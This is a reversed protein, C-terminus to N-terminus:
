SDAPSSLLALEQARAVATTRNRVGLKGYINKLHWKVTTISIVRTDAIQQNTFGLALLRLLAIETVSLPEILAQGVTPIDPTAAGLAALLEMSLHHQPTNHSYHKASLRLVGEMLDGFDLFLRRHGSEVAFRLPHDFANLAEAPDGVRYSVLAQLCCLSLRAQGLPAPVIELLGNILESARENEGLNLLAEGLLLLKSLHRMNPQIDLHQDIEVVWSEVMAMRGQSLELRVQGLTTEAILQPADVGTAQYAVRQAEKVLEGAGQWQHLAQKIRALLLQSCVIIQAENILKAQQIAILLHNSAATLDNREYCLSAMGLHPWAGIPYSTTPVNEVQESKSQEIALAFATEADVLKGQELCVKGRQFQAYIAGYRNGVALCARNAHSFSHLASQLDSSHYQAFALGIHAASQWTVQRPPLSTLAIEYLQISKQPEIHWLQTSKLIALISRIEGVSGSQNNHESSEEIPIRNELWATASEVAWAVTAPANLIAGAWGRLLAVKPHQSLVDAPLLETWAMLLHMEQHTWLKDGIFSIRRAVWEFDEGRLGYRIAEQEYGHRAFWKAGRRYLERISDHADQIIQNRLYDRFLHHYRFWLHEDTPAEASAPTPSVSSSIIFLNNQALYSRMRHANEMGTIADCLSSTLEDFISTQYLFTRVDHPQQQLIEDWLYQAVFHHQGSYDTQFLDGPSHTASDVAKYALVALQLGTVWGETSNIIATRDAPSLPPVVMKRLFEAAENDSFSLDTSGIEVIQGKARFKAVPLPPHTRTSIILHLNPPAYNLLFAICRHIQDNQILHYDDIILTVHNPLDALDNLLLTIIIEPLASQPADILSQAAHGVSPWVRQLSAIFTRLFRLTENDADSLGLWAILQPSQTVWSTLLTTKGYGAPASILTLGHSIHHELREILQPRLVLTSPVRPPRLKTTLIPEM